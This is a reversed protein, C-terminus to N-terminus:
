VAGGAAYVATLDDQRRALIMDAVRAGMLVDEVAEYDEAFGPDDRMRARGASAQSILTSHGTPMKGMAAAITLYPLGFQRCLLVAIYRATITHPMRGRGILETYTVGTEQCVVKIIDSATYKM